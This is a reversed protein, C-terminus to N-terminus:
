AALYRGTMRAVVSATHGEILHAYRKVMALTKHGLAAALKALTAGSVAFYSAFTHRLDHFRLDQIGTAERATEWAKQSPSAKGRTSPLVLDCGLWRVKSRERLVLAALGSIALASREGNKSHHIIAVGRDLDVASWKLSTPEGQRAGTCLAM